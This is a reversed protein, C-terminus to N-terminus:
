AASRRWFACSWTRSRTSLAQVRLNSACACAVPRPAPAPHRRHGAAAAARTPALERCRAAPPREGEPAEAAADVGRAPVQRVGGPLLQGEHRRRHHGVAARHRESRDRFVFFDADVGPKPVAARWQGGNREAAEIVPRWAGIAWRCCRRTSRTGSAVQHQLLRQRHRGVLTACGSSRATSRSRRGEMPLWQYATGPKPVLPNVSGVIRGVRGRASRTAADHHRATAADPRSHGRPRRRDRTPLGIM